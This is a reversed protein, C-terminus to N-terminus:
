AEGQPDGIMWFQLKKPDGLVYVESNLRAKKAVRHWHLTGVGGEGVFM